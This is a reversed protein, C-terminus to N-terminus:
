SLLEKVLQNVVKGDVRGKLKEMASKMVMGMDKPGRAGLDDIIKKLESRLEEQTMQKPMFSLIVQLERQEKEVLDGRNGKEFQEISEKSKKVLSSLVELVEQDTLERRKEIQRNQLASRIMRLASLREKDRSKTAILMEQHIRDSLGM